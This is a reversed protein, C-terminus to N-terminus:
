QFNCLHMVNYGIELVFDTCSHPLAEFGPKWVVGKRTEPNIPTNAVFQLGLLRM